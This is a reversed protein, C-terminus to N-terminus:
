EIGNKWFSQILYAVKIAIDKDSISRPYVDSIFTFGGGPANGILYKVTNHSKYESYIMKNLVLSSPSAIKFKVCYYM